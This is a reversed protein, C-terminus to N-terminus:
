RIELAATVKVLDEVHWVVLSGATRDHWILDSGAGLAEIGALGVIKREPGVSLKDLTREALINGGRNVWYMVKGSEAHHWLLDSHRDGTFDWAGRLDWGSSANLKQTFTNLWTTVTSGSLTWFSVEGSSPHWWLIDTSGDGNFDGTGRVVWGWEAPAADNVEAVRVVKTGNTYAIVLRGASPEYWLIDPWPDEDLRDVAVAAWRGLWEHEGLDIAQADSKTTGALHWVAVRGAIENYWFLDPTGDRNADRAGLIRWGAGM